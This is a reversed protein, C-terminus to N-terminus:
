NCTKYDFITTTFMVAYVSMQATSSITTKDMAFIIPLLFDKNPDKVMTRYTQEYWSGSNVEGLKGNPSVYKSFVDNPNVVLNQNRNLNKDQLLLFLMSTFDCCVVNMTSTDTLDNLDNPLTVERNYPRCYKLNYYNEM